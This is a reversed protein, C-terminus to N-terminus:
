MALLSTYRERRLMIRYVTMKQIPKNQRNTYGLSNLSDAIKQYSLGEDYLKIMELVAPYEKEDPILKYPKKYTRANENMNLIAPDTKFGFWEKGVKEFRNQKEKLADKTKVRAHEREMEAVYAHIHIQAPGVYPQLLSVVKIGKSVLKKEYLYGLEVGERAIRDLSYVVLTDGPRIFEMMQKLKERKKWELRTTKEAEDFYIIPDDANKIANVYDTCKQIQALTTQKKTSVRTYIIYRM